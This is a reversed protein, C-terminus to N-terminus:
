FGVRLGARLLSHRATNDQDLGEKEHYARVQTWELMAAYRTAFRYGIGAGYTLAFDFNTGDVEPVDYGFAGIGGKLYAGLSGMGGSLYRGTLFGSVLKADGSAVLTDGRQEWETTAYTGELGLLLGTTIERELGAGYGIAQNDFAWNDGSEPDYINDVTTYMGASLSVWNRPALRVDRIQAHLPLSAAAFLAGAAVLARLQM